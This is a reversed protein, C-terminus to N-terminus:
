SLSATLRLLETAADAIVQAARARDGGAGPVDLSPAANPCCGTAPDVAPVIAPCADELADAIARWRLALYPRDRDEADAARHLAAMTRALDLPDRFTVTVAM